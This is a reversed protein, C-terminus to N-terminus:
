WFLNCSPTLFTFCIWRSPLQDKHSGMDWRRITGQWCRVCLVAQNLPQFELRMGKDFQAITCSASGKDEKARNCNWPESTQCAEKFVTPKGKKCKKKKKKGGTGSSFNEASLFVALLLFNLYQKQLAQNTPKVEVTQKQLPMVTFDWMHIINVKVMDKRLPLNRWDWMPSSHPYIGHISISHHFRKESVVIKERVIFFNEFNDTLVSM